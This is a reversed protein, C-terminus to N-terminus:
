FFINGTHKGTGFGAEHEKLPLVCIITQADYIIHSALQYIIICPTFQFSIIRRLALILIAEKDLMFSPSKAALCMAQHRVAIHGKM